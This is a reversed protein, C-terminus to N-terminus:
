KNFWKNYWMQFILIRWILNSYRFRDKKFSDLISKVYKYNFFGSKKIMEESLFEELLFFLDNRLWKYIPLDFGIKPRDMIEKPLYKYVIERIPKKSLVGDHKYNFPLTAAFEMLKHDLLPERVELSFGMSARDVKVLLYDRLVDNVGLIYIEDLLDILGENDRKISIFDTKTILLNNLIENPLGSQNLSYQYIKDAQSSNLIKSIGSMKKEIHSYKGTFFPATGALIKSTLSSFPIENIKQLNNPIKKFSDYGGFLEDGGDASLAVTVENRALKSVLMTPICSIDAIPDDFLEPLLPILDLADKKSCDYSIHDTGLYDSIIKADKSEDIGESFGITFTKIKDTRDKQLLTTVLTSDFGGSLFTGVPVDSLMRLECSEKILSESENVAEEFDGEFKDEKFFSSYDWYKITEIKSSVLDFITWSGVEAKFVNSIMTNPHPVYGINLFTKLSKSSVNKVFGSTNFFVKLESGFILRNDEFNYYLPKVGIRDRCLFIKKSIKNYISFAFMGRLKKVIDLGWADFGKLVVETDTTSEFIYGLTKLEEKISIYNYIEGNLVITLNNYIMPQKGLSSLDLISLRVHSLGVNGFENKDIYIDNSDPGRKYLEKNYSWLQEKDLIKNGDFFGAIGCM